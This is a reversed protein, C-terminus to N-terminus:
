AINEEVRNKGYYPLPSQRYISADAIASSSASEYIVSYGNSNTQLFSNHKYIDGFNDFIEMREQSGTNKESFLPTISQRPM